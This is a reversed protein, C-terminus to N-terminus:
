LRRQIPNPIVDGHNTKNVLKRMSLLFTANGPKILPEGKYMRKSIYYGLAILVGIFIIGSTIGIYIIKVNNQGAGNSEITPNYIIIYPSIDISTVNLRLGSRYLSDSFGGNKVSAGLKNSIDTYTKGPDNKSRATINYKIIYESLLRRRTKDTLVRLNSLNIDLDDNKTIAMITKAFAAMTPPGDPYEAWGNAGQKIQFTLPLNPIYNESQEQTPFLAFKPINLSETPRYTPNPLQYIPPLAETPYMTPAFIDAYGANSGRKTTSGYHKASSAHAGSGYHKTSGVLAGSGYHKASGTHATSGYHKVSGGRAGSGYHKESSASAGSGYHKKSGILATSGYHKASSAHAGSGYHKASGTHATSGYHKASGKLATSGYHKASSAHAGSGYHKASGTHPTSGYHKASGILATSGYHKVSSARAGSGYHKVSGVLASSGYHTASFVHTKSGYHKTSGKNGYSYSGFARNPSGGGLNSSGYNMSGVLNRIASAQSLVIQNLGYVLLIMFFNM